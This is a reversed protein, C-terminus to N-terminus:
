EGPSFDGKVPDYDVVALGTQFAPLRAVLQGQRNFALSTGDFILDDNAGVQNAYLIPCRFRRCQPGAHGNAAAAKNLSYPSASLNIV